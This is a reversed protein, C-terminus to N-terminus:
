EIMSPKFDDREITGATTVLLKVVDRTTTEILRHLKGSKWIFKNILYFICFSQIQKKKEEIEFGYFIPQHFSSTFDTLM